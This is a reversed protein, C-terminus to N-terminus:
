HNEYNKNKGARAANILSKGTIQAGRQLLIRMNEINDTAREIATEGNFVANFDIPLEERDVVELLINLIETPKKGAAISITNSMPNAIELCLEIILINGHLVALNLIDAVFSSPVPLYGSYGLDNLEFRIQYTHDNNLKIM